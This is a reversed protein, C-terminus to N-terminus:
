QQEGKIVKLKKRSKIMMIIAMIATAACSAFGVAAKLPLLETGDGFTALMLVTLSAMSMCADAFNVNRLAQTVPDNLRSAKALNLVTATTKYFTYAANAIAMIMGGSTSREYLMMVTIAAAMGVEVVILFTGASFYIKWETETRAPEAEGHKCKADALMVSGRFLLLLVYYVTIAVYWLERYKIASVFNITAFVLTSAVSIFSLVKTKFKYNSLYDSTFRNRKLLQLLKDKAAPYIAVGTYVSYALSCAALAYVVYILPHEVNAAVTLVSM